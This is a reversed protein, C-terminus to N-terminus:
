GLEDCDWPDLCGPLERESHQITGDRGWRPPRQCVPLQGSVGTCAPFRLRERWGASPIACCLLIICCFDYANVDGQLHYLVAYYSLAISFPLAINNQRWKVMSFVESCVDLSHSSHFNCNLGRSVMEEFDFAVFILTYTLTKDYCDLYESIHQAAALLAAMGSGNDDVGSATLSLLYHLIYSLAKHFLVTAAM